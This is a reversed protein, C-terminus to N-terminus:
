PECRSDLGGPGFATTLSVDLEIGNSNCSDSCDPDTTGDRDLVLVPKTPDPAGGRIWPVMTNFYTCPGFTADAAGACHYENDYGNVLMRSGASASSAFLAALAVSMLAACLLLRKRPLHM